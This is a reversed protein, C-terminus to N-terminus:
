TGTRIDTVAGATSVTTLTRGDAQIAQAWAAPSMLLPLSAMGIALGHPRHLNAVLTRLRPLNRRRQTSKM